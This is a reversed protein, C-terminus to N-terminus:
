RTVSPAGYRGRGDADLVIQFRADGDGGFAGPLGGVGEHEVGDGLRHLLVFQIVREM